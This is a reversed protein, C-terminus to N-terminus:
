SIALERTINIKKINDYKLNQRDFLNLISVGIEANKGWPIFCYTAAIDFRSYYIDDLQDAVIEKLIEM